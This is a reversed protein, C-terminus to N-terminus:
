KGSDNERARLNRRFRRTIEVLAVGQTGAMVRNSFRRRLVDLGIYSRRKPTFGSVNIFRLKATRHRVTGPTRTHTHTNKKKFIDFKTGRAWGRAGPTLGPPHVNGRIGRNWTARESGATPDAPQVPHSPAATALRGDPRGLQHHPGAVRHEVHRAEAAGHAGRHQGLAIPEPHAVAGHKAALVMRHVVTMMMMLLLMVMM